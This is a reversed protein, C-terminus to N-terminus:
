NFYALNSHIGNAIAFTIYFFVCFLKNWFNTKILILQYFTFWFWCPLIHMGQVTSRPIKLAQSIKKNGFGAKFKEVVTDRVQRIHEKNKM